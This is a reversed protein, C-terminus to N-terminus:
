AEERATLHTLNPKEEVLHLHQWSLFHKVDTHHVGVSKKEM